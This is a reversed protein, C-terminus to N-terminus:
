KRRPFWFEMTDKPLSKFKGELSSITIAAPDSGLKLTSRAISALTGADSEEGKNYYRVEYKEPASSVL